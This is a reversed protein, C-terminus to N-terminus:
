MPRVPILILLAEFSLSYSILGRSSVKILDFVVSFSPFVLKSVSVANCFVELNEERLWYGAMELLECLMPTISSHEPIPSMKEMQEFIQSFVDWFKSILSTEFRHIVLIMQFVSSMWRYLSSSDADTELSPVKKEAIRLPQHFYAKAHKLILESMWNEQEISSLSTRGDPFTLSYLCSPEDKKPEPAVETM